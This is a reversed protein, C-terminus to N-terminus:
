TLNVGMATLFSSSAEEAGQWWWPARPDQPAAEKPQEGPLPWTPVGLEGDFRKRAREPTENERVHLRQLMQAYVLNL